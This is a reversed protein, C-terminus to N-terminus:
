TGETGSFLSQLHLTRTKTKSALTVYTRALSDKGAGLVTGVLGLAEGYDSPPLVQLIRKWTAEELVNFATQVESLDFGAAYRERAVTEAHAIMPGLNREKVGRVTLVYLAKLRQHTQNKGAREYGETHMRALAAEAAALISDASDALLQHLDM